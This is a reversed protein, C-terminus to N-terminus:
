YCQTIFSMESPHKPCCLLYAIGADGWDVPLTRGGELQFILQSQLGQCQSCIPYNSDQVWDPWGGLKDGSVNLFRLMAIQEESLTQKIRASDTNISPFDSKAKSWGSINLVPFAPGEEVRGEGELPICRVVGRGDGWANKNYFVQLLKNRREKKHPHENLNLQLVLPLVKGDSQPRPYEDQVWPQGGFRSECLRLEIDEFIPYYAKRKDKKLLVKLEKQIQKRLNITAGSKELLPVVQDMISSAEACDWTSKGDAEIKNPSAGAKLLVHVVDLHGASIAKHLPPIRDGKSAKDVKAGNRILLEVIDVRGKASAWILPTYGSPKTYANLNVGMGILARCCKLFGRPVVLNFANILTDTEAWPALTYLFDLHNGQAAMVFAIRKEEDTAKPWLADFRDRFGYGAAAAFGVSTRDFAVGGHARLLEVIETYGLDVAMEIPHRGLKTVRNVPAKHDLLFTVMDLHNGRIANLLPEYGDGAAPLDVDEDPMENVRIWSWDLPQLWVKGDKSKRELLARMLKLSGQKAAEGEPTRGELNGGPRAGAKNLVLICKIHGEQTAPVLANIIYIPYIHHTLLKKLSNAKGAKSAAYLAATRQGESSSPLLDKIKSLDGDIAAQVLNV